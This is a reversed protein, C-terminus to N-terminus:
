RLANKCAPCELSNSDIATYCRPCIRIGSARRPQEPMQPMQPMRGSPRVEPASERRVASAEWPRAPNAAPASVNASSNKHNLDHLQWIVILLEIFILFVITTLIVQEAEM